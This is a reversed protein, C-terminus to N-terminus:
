VINSPMESIIWGLVTVAGAYMLLGAYNAMLIMPMCLLLLCIALWKRAQVSLNVAFKVHQNAKKVCNKRRPDSKALIVLILAGLLIFPLTVVLHNM